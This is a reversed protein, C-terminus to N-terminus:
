HAATYVTKPTQYKLSQHPRKENYFRLYEGIGDRAEEFSTYGRIYVDEYKVTRWLRETFINDMCRGRGDMSIAVGTDKLPELYEACTFQSGQDSNHIDPTATMLGNRLNETCFGVEM